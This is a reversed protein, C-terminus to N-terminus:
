FSKEDCIMTCYNGTMRTVADIFTSFFYACFTWLYTCAAPTFPINVPLYLSTCFFHECTTVLIYILFTWLYTCAAYLSSFNLFTVLLMHPLFTWLYTCADHISSINMTSVLLTYTINLPLHPLFIWLYSYAAHASFINVPLLTYFVKSWCMEKSCFCISSNM